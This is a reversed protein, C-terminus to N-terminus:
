AARRLKRTTKDTRVVFGTLDERAIGKASLGVVVGKPDLFRADHEDGDIVPYGLWSKPLDPWFVVAVNGGRRLLEIADGRNKESLSFTLHYNEPWAAGGSQGDLFAWMRPRLKTYDFFRIEPFEEFVERYLREWPIDSTGNLRAAPTMGLHRATERLEYLDARLLTLFHDQDELYLASRRDRARASSPMQM